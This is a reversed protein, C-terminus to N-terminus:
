DRKDGRKLSAVYRWFMVDKILNLESIISILLRLNSEDITNKTVIQKLLEIQQEVTNKQTDTLKYLSDVLQEAKIM